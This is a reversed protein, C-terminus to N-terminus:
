SCCGVHSARNSFSGYVRFGSVRFALGSARLGLASFGLGECGFGLVRFARFAFFSPRGFMSALHKAHVKSGYVPSNRHISFNRCSGIYCLHRNLAQPCLTELPHIPTHPFVPIYPTKLSPNLPLVWYHFILHFLFHFSCNM